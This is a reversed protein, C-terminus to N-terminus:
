PYPARGEELMQIFQAIRRARTEPRKADQIRYLIAYRNTASLLPFRAGAEPHQALAAAFDDPVTMQKQPAYAAEWRGDARAREVQELGAPAMLGEKILAEARERNIRSWRSRPRRPTFKQLWFREDLPHKLGDIWGYRLANDVAEDYRLAGVTKKELKLWIGPSELHWAELWALWADQNPV